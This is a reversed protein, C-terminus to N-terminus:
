SIRREIIHHRSPIYSNIHLLLLPTNLGKMELGYITGVSCAFYTFFGGITM